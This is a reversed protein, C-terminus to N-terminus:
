KDEDSEVEDQFLEDLSKQISKQDNGLNNYWVSSVRVLTDFAAEFLNKCKLFNVDDLDEYKIANPDEEDEQLAILLKRKQDYNEGVFIPFLESNDKGEIKDEYYSFNLVLWEILKQEAKADATQGFQDRVAIEYEYIVKKTEAFKNEANKLEEKQEENLNEAGKFFTVVRAAEINEMIIESMTENTKKSNMGGIDGMKKALMAKTLFGANIYENFKQGYFFDADEKQAVTPKVFVVRNKLTKTVKKTTEVTGDKTKKVTPVEKQIKRKVDFSYLEKM